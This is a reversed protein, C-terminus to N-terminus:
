LDIEFVARDRKNEEKINFRMEWHGPMSFKVGEVKYNGNGLYEKIRPKTPFKHRHTPMGGHVYIKVNEVPEGAPTEVHLTWSHIKNLPLPFENSFLTVRYIGDQSAITHANEKNSYLSPKQSTSGSNDHQKIATNACGLLIGALVAVILLRFQFRLKIAKMM